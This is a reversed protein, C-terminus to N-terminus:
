RWGTTQLRRESNSFGENSTRGWAREQTVNTVNISEEEKRKKAYINNTTSTKM